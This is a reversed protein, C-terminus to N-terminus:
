FIVGEVHPVDLLVQDSLTPTQCQRASIRFTPIKSPQSKILVVRMLTQLRSKNFPVSLILAKM